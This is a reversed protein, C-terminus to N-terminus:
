TGTELFGDFGGLPLEGADVQTSRKGNSTPQWHPAGQQEFADEQARRQHLRDRVATKVWAWSRPNYGQRKLTQLIEVAASADYREIRCYEYFQAVINDSPRSEMLKAAAAAIAALESRELAVNAATSRRHPHSRPPEPASAPKSDRNKRNRSPQDSDDLDRKKEESKEEFKEEEKYPVMLNSPDHGCIQHTVAEFNIPRAGQVTHAETRVCGQRAGVEHGMSESPDHGMSESPEETSDQAM